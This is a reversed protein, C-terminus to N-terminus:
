RGRRLRRREDEAEDGISPLPFGIAHVQDDDAKPAEGSKLCVEHVPTRADKAIAAVATDAEVCKSLVYKM